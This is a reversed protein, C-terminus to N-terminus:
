WSSMVVDLVEVERRVIFGNSDTECKLRVSLKKTGTMLVKCLDNFEDVHCDLVEMGDRRIFVRPSLTGGLVRELNGFEVTAEITSAGSRFGAGSSLELTAKPFTWELRQQSLPCTSCRWIAVVHSKDLYAETKCTTCYCTVLSFLDTSTWRYGRPRSFSQIRLGLVRACVTGLGSFNSGLLDAISAFATFQQDPNGVFKDPPVQDPPVLCITASDNAVLCYMDEMRNWVVRVAKFEFVRGINKRLQSTWQPEPSPIRLVTRDSKSDLLSIEWGSTGPQSLPVKRPLVDSMTKGRFNIITGDEFARVNVFRSNVDGLINAVEKAVIRQWGTSKYFHKIMQGGFCDDSNITLGWCVRIWNTAQAIRDSVPYLEEVTKRLLSAGWVGRFCVVDGASLREVWLAQNRWLTIPFFSATEDGVLVSALSLSQGANKGKSISIDQVPNVQTIVCLINCSAGDSVDSLSPWRDCTVPLQQISTHRSPRPAASPVPGSSVLNPAPIRWKPIHFRSSAASPRSSAQARPVEVDTIDGESTMSPHSEVATITSADDDSPASPRALKTARTEANLVNLSFHAAVQQTDWRFSEQPHSDKESDPEVGWMPYRQTTNFSLFTNTQMPVISGTLARGSMPPLSPIGRHGESQTGIGLEAREGGAANGFYDGFMTDMYVAVSHELTCDFEGSDQGCNEVLPVSDVEIAMLGTVPSKPSAPTTGDDRLPLDGGEDVDEFKEASVCSNVDIHRVERGEELVQLLRKDDEVKTDVEWMWERKRKRGKLGPLSCTERIRGQGVIREALGLWIDSGGGHAGLTTDEIVSKGGQDLAFCLPKRSVLPPSSFFLTGDKEGALGCDPLDLIPPPFLLLRRDM